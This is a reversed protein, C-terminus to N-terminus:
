LIYRTYTPYLFLQFFEVQGNGNIVYSLEECIHFVTMFYLIYIALFFFDVQGTGTFCGSDRFKAYLHNSLGSGNVM